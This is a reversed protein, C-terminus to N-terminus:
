NRCRRTSSSTTGHWTQFSQRILCFASCGLALVIVDQQNKDLRPWDGTVLPQFHTYPECHSDTVFAPGDIETWM